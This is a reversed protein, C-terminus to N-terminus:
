IAVDRMTRMTLLRAPTKLMARNYRLKGLFCYDQFLNQLLNGIPAYIICIPMRPMCCSLGTYPSRKFYTLLHTLYFRGWQCQKPEYNQM